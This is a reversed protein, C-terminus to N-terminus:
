KSLDLIHSVTITEVEIKEEEANQEVVCNQHSYWKLPGVQKHFKYEAMEKCMYEHLCFCPIVVIHHIKASAGQSENKVRVTRWSPDFPEDLIVFMDKPESFALSKPFLDSMETNHWKLANVFAITARQQMELKIVAFHQCKPSTLSHITNSEQDGSVFKISYIHFM